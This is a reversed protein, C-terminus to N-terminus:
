RQDMGACDSQGALSLDSVVDPDTIGRAEMEDWIVTTIAHVVSEEYLEDESWMETAPVVHDGDEDRYIGESATIRALTSDIDAAALVDTTRLFDELASVDAPDGSRVVMRYECAKGSPLTFHVVGDPNQVWPQWPKWDTLAAAAAVGAGGLGLALMTAIAAARPTTRRQTRRAEWAAGKAMERLADDSVADALSTQPSADELLAALEWRDTSDQPEGSNDQRAKTM